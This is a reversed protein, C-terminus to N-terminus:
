ILVKPVSDLFFIHTYKNEFYIELDLIGCFQYFHSYFVWIEHKLFLIYYKSTPSLVSKLIM